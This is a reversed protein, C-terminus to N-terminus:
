TLNFISSFWTTNAVGMLDILADRSTAARVTQIPQAIPQADLTEARAEDMFSAYLAAIKAADDRASPDVGQEGRELIDRVRAEATEFLVMDISNSSRDPSITTRDQWAGNAYDYFGDGPKASLRAGNLNFGWPAYEGTISPRPAPANQSTGAVPFSLVLV